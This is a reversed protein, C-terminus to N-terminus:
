EMVWLYARLPRPTAKLAKKMGRYEARMLAWENMRERRPVNPNWGSMRRLLKAKKGRM